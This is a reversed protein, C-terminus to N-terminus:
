AHKSRVQEWTFIILFGALGWVLFDAILRRFDLSNKYQLFPGCTGGGFTSPTKQVYVFPFGRDTQVPTLPPTANPLACSGVTLSVATTAVVFYTAATVVVAVVVASLAATSIDSM